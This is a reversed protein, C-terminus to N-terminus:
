ARPVHHLEGASPELRSCARECLDRLERDVAPCEALRNLLDAARHASHPCGTEGYSLLQSLAGAWLSAPVPLPLSAPLNEM